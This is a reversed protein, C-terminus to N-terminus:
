PNPYLKLLEKYHNELGLGSLNERYSSKEWIRANNDVGVKVTNLSDYLVNRINENEVFLRSNTQTCTTKAFNWFENNFKNDGIYHMSIIFEMFSIVEKYTYNVVDKGMEPNQIYDSFNKACSLMLGISTAELPEIFFSANGNYMVRGDFNEKRSYNAFELYNTSESPILNYEAFINKVDEKIEEINTIDKNFLYGVSCRNALPILFVWGYPRAVTGTYSFRSYDWYCQTVYCANVPTAQSINFAELNKPKGSCDMVYDSDISASDVVGEVVKVKDKITDLIYSQLKNANFHYAVAPPTFNHLFDGNGSWGIKRIGYKISGDILPLQSYKFNITRYLFTSLTLDSGEGVAQPLTAPDHYLVIEKDSHNRLILLSSLM